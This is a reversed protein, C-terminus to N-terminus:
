DYWWRRPSFRAYRETRRGQEDWEFVIAGLSATNLVEAGVARYRAVVAEDPHGHRGEYAASVLARSPRTQRVWEASSSTSAGHHPIQLVQVSEQLQDGGILRWEVEREIDGTLLVREGAYEIQLVCSRNNSNVKAPFGGHLFRFTVQNWQWSRGSHCNQGSMPSSTTPDGLWLRGVPMGDILGPLGGAHDDHRHSVVVADLRDVGLQQWYPVIVGSGADLRESYTPGTDYVLTYDPTQVAVALGQGVDLFAVRLPPVPPAPLFLALVVTPYGLWRAPVGRPLLTLLAGLGALVVAPGTLVAQLPALPTHRDLWELWFLLGSLGQDSIWLAAESAWPWVSCVTVAVLLWPVVLLTVLPIALLNALPALLSASHVLILLPVLLGLFVAWQAKLLGEGPTGVAVQRRGTFALMLVAVATFSLWFGPDFPALPDRVLVALWAILLGTAAPLTRRRLMAWQVVWVMILARQTPISFGALASYGLAFVLALVQGLLPSPARHCVINLCRGLMNGLWLGALAVMGVHLGSIALLHNTGTRQLLTWREPGLASRDGILLAQMLGRHHLGGREELWRRARERWHSLSAVSPAELRRNDPAARVYGTADVGQRMLWLQYDFGGPNVFGRPPKVRLTLQWREGARLSPGGYWSVLIHRLPLALVEGRSSEVREVRFRSRERRSDHDPLGVLTGQVRLDQGSLDEPLRHHLQWHGFLLGWTLGLLGFALLQRWRPARWALVIILPLLWLPSVPPLRPLQAALIIGLSCSVLIRNLSYEFRPPKAPWHSVNKIVAKVLRNLARGKANTM